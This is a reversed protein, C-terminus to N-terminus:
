LKNCVYQVGAAKGNWALMDSCKINRLPQELQKNIHGTHNHENLDNEFNKM